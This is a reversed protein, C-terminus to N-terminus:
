PMGIPEEAVVEAKFTVTDERKDYFGNKPDMLEGFKIFQNWGRSAVIANFVDHGERQGLRESSKKCSVIVFKVNALCNWTMDNEDGCCKVIFSVYADWHKIKIRWPLGNIYVVPESLVEKPGRGESFEKFKPMRFVIQGSRKYKNDKTQDGGTNSPSQTRSRKMQTYM